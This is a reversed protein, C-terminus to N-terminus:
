YDMMFYVLYLRLTFTMSCAADALFREWPNCKNGAKVFFSFSGTNEFCPCYHIKTGNVTAMSSVADTSTCNISWSRVGSTNALKITITSGSTANYGSTGTLSIATNNVTCTANAM